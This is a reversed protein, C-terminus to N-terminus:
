GALAHWHHPVRHGHFLLVSSPVCKIYDLRSKLQTVAGEDLVLKVEGIYACKEALACFDTQLSKPFLNSPAIKVSGHNLLVYHMLAQLAENELSDSTNNIFGQLQALQSFSPSRSM